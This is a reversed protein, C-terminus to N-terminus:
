YDFYLICLLFNEISTISYFFNQIHLRYKLKGANGNGGTHSLYKSMKHYANRLSMTRTNNENGCSPNSTDGCDTDSLGSDTCTAM